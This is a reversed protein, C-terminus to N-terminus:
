PAATRRRYLEAELAAHVHDLETDGLELVQDIVKELAPTGVAPREAAKEEVPPASAPAVPAGAAAPANLRDIEAKVLAQLASLREQDTMGILDPLPAPAKKAAAPATGSAAAVVDAKTVTGGKGTGEVVAIDVGTKEAHELAGKTADWEEGPALKTPDSTPTTPEDTM